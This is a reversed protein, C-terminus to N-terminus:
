PAVPEGLAAPLGTSVARAAEELDLTFLGGVDIRRHAVVAGLERAPVGREACLALLGEADVASV